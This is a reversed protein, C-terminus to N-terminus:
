RADKGDGDDDEDRKWEAMRTAQQLHKRSPDYLNLWESTVGLGGYSGRAHRYYIWGRDEASMLGHHLVYGALLVLTGYALPGLQLRLGGTLAWALWVLPALALAAM